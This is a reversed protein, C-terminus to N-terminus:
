GLTKEAKELWARLSRADEPLNELSGNDIVEVYSVTCSEKGEEEFIEKLREKPNTVKESQDEGRIALIWAEIAKIAVGGIIDPCNDLTQRVERMGRKIDEERKNNPHKRSGDRDRVFAVIDCGAEKAMLVLGKVAREEASAHGGVRFKIVDKWRVSERVEWGEARVKSLLGEIVGKGYKARFSPHHAWKGLDNPGEGALFVKKM